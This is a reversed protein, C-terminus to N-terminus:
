KLFNSYSADGSELTFTIRSEVSTALVPRGEVKKPQMRWSRVYALAAQDFAGEPVSEVVRINVLDGTELVDYVVIVYGEVKSAKLEDPYHFDGSATLIPPVINAACGALVFAALLSILASQLLSRLTLVNM